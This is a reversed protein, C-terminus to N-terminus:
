EATRYVAVVKNKSPDRLLYEIKLANQMEIKGWREGAYFHDHITDSEVVYTFHVADYTLGKGIIVKQITEIEARAFARKGIMIDPFQFGSWWFLVLAGALSM